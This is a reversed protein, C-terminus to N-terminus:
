CRSLFPIGHRVSVLVGRIDLPRLLGLSLLAGAPTDALDSVGWMVPQPHMGPQVVVRAILPVRGQHLQANVAVTVSVTLIQLRLGTLLQPVLHNLEGAVLRQDEDTVVAELGM